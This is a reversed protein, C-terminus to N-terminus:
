KQYGTMPDIQIAPADYQPKNLNRNYFSNSNDQQPQEAQNNYSYSWTNQSGSNSPRLNQYPLQEAISQTGVLVLSILLLKTITM